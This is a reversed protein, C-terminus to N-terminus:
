LTESPTIEGTIYYNQFHSQVSIYQHYIATGPIKKLSSLLNIQNIKLNSKLIGMLIIYPM